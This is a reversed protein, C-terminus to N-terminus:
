DEDDDDDDKDTVDRVVKMDSIADLFDAPAEAAIPLAHRLAKSQNRLMDRFAGDKKSEASEDRADEYKEIGEKVAKAVKKASRSMGKELEQLSRLIGRSYKKKKKSKKEVVIPGGTDQATMPKKEGKDTIQASITTQAEPRAAPEGL